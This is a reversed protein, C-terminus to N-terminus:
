ACYRYLTKDEEARVLYQKEMLLEICKKIISINPQFRSKSQEVVESILQNHTQAKRAKMIRVIAAQLFIKRDENISHHVNNRDSATDKLMTSAIKFKFHKNSYNMNLLYETGGLQSEEQLIKSEVLSALTRTVDEEPLCYLQMIDELTVKDQKNFLLLISAQYTTAVVVHVNKLYTMSVEMTSRYHLWQLTRGSFQSHYFNEFGMLLPTLDEPLQFSPATRRQIPWSGSQLVLVKLINKEGAKLQFKIRLDESIRIDQLMRQLKNTYSYGCCAKLKQIMNEESDQSIYTSNILRNALNRSYFRLFIDKGDVYSFITVLQTLREDVEAESVIKSGKRLIADCQKALIEAAKAGDCTFEPSNVIKELSHDMAEKSYSDASFYETTIELYRTHIRLFNTIYDQYNKSTKLKHIVNMGQETYYTQLHDSIGSLGEPVDKFLRYMVSLQEFDQKNILHVAEDKLRDLYDVLLRDEIERCLKIQTGAHLYQRGFDRATKLQRHAWQIYDGITSSSDSIRAAAENRYNDREARLLSEELNHTYYFLQGMVQWAEVEIYSKVLDHIQTRYTVEQRDNQMEFIVAETLRENLPIILKEKWCKLAMSSVELKSEDGLLGYLSLLLRNAQRSDFMGKKANRSNLASFLSNLYRVGDNFMNWQTSYQNLLHIRHCSDLEYKINLVHQEFFKELYNNLTDAYSVPYPMCLAYVDSFSDNWKKRDVGELRIVSSITRVIDSWKRDFTDSKQTNLAQTM